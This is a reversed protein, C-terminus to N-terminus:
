AWDSRIGFAGEFAGEADGTAGEVGKEFGGWEFMENKKIGGVDFGTDSIEVGSGGKM